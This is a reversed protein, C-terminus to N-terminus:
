IKKKLTLHNAGDEFRYAVDDMTKRVLFIGLGGIAREEVGLSTDPEEKELPNFPIGRDIFTISFMRSGPDFAMQVRAEGESLPYAYHAINSFIEDVAVDLQMQARMPCELRELEADVWDTLTHLNDLEAKLTIEQM